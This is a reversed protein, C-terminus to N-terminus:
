DQPETGNEVLYQILELMPEVSHYNVAVPWYGEAVRLVLSPFSDVGM